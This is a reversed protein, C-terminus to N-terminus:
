RIERDLAVKWEPKNKRFAVAFYEASLGEELRRLSLGSVSELRALDSADVVFADLTGAHLMEAWPADAESADILRAQPWRKLAAAYSTAFRDAGIRKGDLDGLQRFPSDPKVVAVIETEFYPESFDVRQLRGPTIGINSVAIDIVGSELADFLEAFPREVWRVTKGLRKAAREVLDVEIGVARGEANWSSYGVHVMNSAAVWETSEETDEATSESNPAPRCAALVTLCVLLLSWPWLSSFKMSHM